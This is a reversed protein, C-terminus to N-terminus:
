AYIFLITDSNLQIVWKFKKRTYCIIIIFFAFLNNKRLTTDLQEDFIVLFRQINIKKILTKLNNLTSLKTCNIFKINAINLFNNSSIILQIIM